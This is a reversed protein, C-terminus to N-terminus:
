AAAEEIELIRDYAELPLVVIDRILLAARAEALAPDQVAAQLGALLRRLDDAPIDKRTIYPLSPAAATTAM